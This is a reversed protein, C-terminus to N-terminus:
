ATRVDCEEEARDRGGPTDRSRSAYPCLLLTEREEMNERINM